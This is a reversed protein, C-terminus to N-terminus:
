GIGDVNYICATHSPGSAFSVAILDCFEEIFQEICRLDKNVIRALTICTGEAVTFVCKLILWQSANLTTCSTEDDPVRFGSDNKNCSFIKVEKSVTLM